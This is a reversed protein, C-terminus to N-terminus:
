DEGDTVVPGENPGADDREVVAYAFPFLALKAMSFNKLGFPIGLITVCLLVGFLM